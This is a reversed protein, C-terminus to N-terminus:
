FDSLASNVENLYAGETSTKNLDSDSGVQKSDTQIASYGFPDKAASPSGSKSTTTQKPAMAQKGGTAEGLADSVELAIEDSLDKIMGANSEDLAQKDQNIEDTLMAIKSKRGPLQGTAFLALVIVVAIGAPLIIKWQTSMYELQKIAFGMLSERSASPIKREISPRGQEAGRHLTSRDYAEKTVGPPSIRSLIVQLLAPPAPFADKQSAFMDMIRFIEQLEERERPFADFIEPVPRGQERLALAEMLAANKKDAADLNM